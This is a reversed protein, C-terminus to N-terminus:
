VFIGQKSSDAQGPARCMEKDPRQARCGVCVLINCPVEEDSRTNVWQVPMKLKKARDMPAFVVNKAMGSPCLITNIM